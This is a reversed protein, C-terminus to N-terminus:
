KQSVHRKITKSSVNFPEAVKAYCWEKSQHPHKTRIEAFAARYADFRAQKEEPTGHVLAHGKRCARYIKFWGEFADIRETSELADVYRALFHMDFLADCVMNMDVNGERLFTRLCEARELVSYANDHSDWRRPEALTLRALNEWENLYGWLTEISNQPSGVVWEVGHWVSRGAQSEESEEM